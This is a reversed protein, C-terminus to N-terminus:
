QLFFQVLCCADPICLISSRGLALFYHATLNYFCSSLLKWDNVHMFWFPALAKGVLISQTLTSSPTQWNRSNRWQCLIDWFIHFSTSFTARLRSHFSLVGHVDEYDQPWCKSIWIVQDEEKWSDITATGFIWRRWLQTYTHPLFVPSDSLDLCWFYMLVIPFSRGISHHTSLQVATATKLDLSARAKKYFFFLM